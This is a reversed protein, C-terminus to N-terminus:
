SSGWQCRRLQALARAWVAKVSDLSKGTRAAIEACSLGELHHLVLVQRYHEPLEALANALLIAQESRAAHSSPSSGQSFMARDMAVSSADLQDLLRKELRVDRSRTRCYQRVVDALNRALAKRLWATLEPEGTGRFQGFDRVAECFTAQVVDSPDVKEKLRRGLEESALFRLYARHHELLQGLAQPDGGRARRLCQALERGTMGDM